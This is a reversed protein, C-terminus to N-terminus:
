INMMWQVWFKQNKTEENTTEDHECDLFDDNTTIGFNASAYHIALEQYWIKMENQMEERQMALEQSPQMLMM